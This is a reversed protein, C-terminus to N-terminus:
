RRSLLSTRGANGAPSAASGLRIPQSNARRLAEGQPTTTTSIGQGTNSRTAARQILSTREEDGRPAVGTLEDRIDRQRFGQARPGALPTLGEAQRDINRALNEITGLRFGTAPDLPPDAPRNNFDRIRLEGFIDGSEIETLAGTGPRGAERALLENALADTSFEVFQGVPKEGAFGPAKKFNEIPSREFIKTASGRFESDSLQDDTLFLNNFNGLSTGERALNFAARKEEDQKKGM